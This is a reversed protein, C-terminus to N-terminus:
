LMICITHVMGWTISFKLMLGQGGTEISNELRYLILYLNLSKIAFSSSLDRQSWTDDQQTYAHTSVRVGNFKTNTRGYEGEVGGGGACVCLPHGNNARLEIYPKLAAMFGSILLLSGFKIGLLFNKAM